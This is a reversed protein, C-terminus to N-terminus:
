MGFSISHGPQSEIDSIPVTRICAVNVNEWAQNFIEQGKSNSTKKLVAVETTVQECQTALEFDSFASTESICTINSIWQPIRHPDFNKEVIFPCDPNVPPIDTLQCFAVIESAILESHRANPTIEGRQQTRFGARIWYAGRLPNRQMLHGESDYAPVPLSGCLAFSIFLFAGCLYSMGM